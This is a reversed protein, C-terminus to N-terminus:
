NTYNHMTLYTIRNQLSKKVKSDTAKNLQAQLYKIQSDFLGVKEQDNKNLLDSFYGKGVRRTKGQKFVFPDATKIFKV